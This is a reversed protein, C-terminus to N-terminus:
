FSGSHPACRQADGGRRGGPLLHRSLAASSCAFQKRLHSGSTWRTERRRKGEAQEASGQSRTGKASHSNPPRPPPVEHHPVAAVSDGRTVEPPHRLRSSILLTRKFFPLSGLSSPHCFGEGTSSSLIILTLFLRSPARLRRTQSRPAANLHLCTQTRHSSHKSPATPSGLQKDTPCFRRRPARGHPRSAAGLARGKIQRPQLARHARATICLSATGLLDGM